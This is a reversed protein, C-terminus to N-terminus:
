DIDYDGGEAIKDEFSQVGKLVYEEFKQATKIADETSHTKKAELALLAIANSLSSQRIIYVQKTAREEPTEYTSRPTATTKAGTNTASPGGTTKTISLVNWFEGKKEKEIAITEGPSLAELQGKLPANFKFTNVHFAQEKLSGTDDRYSLRYGPYQGGDKKTVQVNAEMSVVTGNIQM